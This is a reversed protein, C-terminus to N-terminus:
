RPAFWIPSTWAREQITQEAGEFEACRGAERCVQASWRPTPVELVRAYWFAYESPDFSGDTWTACANLRGRADDLLTVISETTDAGRTAGKIIEIRQLPTQDYLAEVKFHVQKRDSPLTAGMVTANRVNSAGCSQPADSATIRLKIRPGSTAYVERRALAAFISARTNEEAWVAVLGGPNFTVRSMTRALDGIGFVPGPWQDEEVFGGTAGHTDTSGILGMQLPNLRGSDEKQAAIGRLLLGRAYSGRMREWEAATFDAPKAPRSSKTLYLEFDCDGESGFAPLCESNGKEQHIELLTEYRARLARVDPAETEVDFSKGDGMNTNHPIVLAKCEGRCNLELQSWLAFPTPHRLYDIAEPTVHENAFIVNRHNHSYDPTASWEFGHLATFACPEDAANTQKQIRRWQTGRAQACAAPDSECLEPIQPVAKTISPIVYEAFVEGGTAPANRETMTRCYEADRWEPDTCLYLLDFWEAHDTVAMFDLPRDLQVAFGGPLETPKGKAFAYAQAPTATTGFGWADLSYGTHVHLDGWYVNKVGPVYGSCHEEAALATSSILTLYAVLLCASRTITGHNRPKGTRSDGVM